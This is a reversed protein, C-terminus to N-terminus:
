FMEEFHSNGEDLVRTRISNIRTSAAWRLKEHEIGGNAVVFHLLWVVARRPQLLMSGLPEIFTARRKEHAHTTDTQLHFVLLSSEALSSCSHM